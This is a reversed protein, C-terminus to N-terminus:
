SHRADYRMVKEKFLSDRYMAHRLDKRITAKKVGKATKKQVRGHRISYMKSWLGIFEKIPASATEGKMTGLVKKNVVSHLFHDKLYDRTDFKDAYNIM